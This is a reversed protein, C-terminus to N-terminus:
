QITVVYVSQSNNDNVVRVYYTGGAGFAGKWVLDPLPCEGSESPEGTVCDVMQVTGRGTPQNNWWANLNEPAYVEFRVGSDKGKVLTIIMVPRKGTNPDAGYGFRYWTASHAPLIHQQGDIARAQAPDDVVVLPPAITPVPIPIVRVTPPATATPAIAIRTGTAIPTSLNTLALMPFTTATSGPIETPTPSIEAIRNGQRGSSLFFLIGGALLTLLLIVWCTLLSVGVWGIKDKRSSM